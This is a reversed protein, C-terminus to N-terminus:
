FSQSSDLFELFTKSCSHLPPRSQCTGRLKRQTRQPKFTKETLRASTKGEHQLGATTPQLGATTPGEHNANAKAKALPQYSSALLQKELPQIKWGGAISAAYRCLRPTDADLSGSAPRPGEPLRSRLSNHNATLALRHITRAAPNEMRQVIRVSKEEIIVRTRASYRFKGRFKKQRINVWNGAYDSKSARM